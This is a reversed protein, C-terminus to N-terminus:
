MHPDFLFDPFVDVDMDDVFDTRAGLEKVVAEQNFFCAAKFVAATRPNTRGSQRLDHIDRGARLVPKVTLDWHCRSAASCVGKERTSYCQVFLPRCHAVAVRVESCPAGPLLRCLVDPQADMQALPDLLSNGLGVSRLNIHSAAGKNMAVIFEALSLVTQGAFSDGFVHVPSDRYDPFKRMFKRLFLYLIRTSNAGLRSEGPGYSYGSDVFQVTLM